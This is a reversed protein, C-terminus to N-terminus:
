GLIEIPDPPTLVRRALLRRNHAGFPRLDRLAFDPFIRRFTRLREGAGGPRLAITSLFMATVLDRRERRSRAGGDVFHGFANRYGWWLTEYKSRYAERSGPTGTRQDASYALVEGIHHVFPARDACKWLLLGSYGVGIGHTDADLRAPIRDEFAELVDATRLLVCSTTVPVHDAIEASRLLFEVADEDRDTEAAYCVSQRDGLDWTMGTYVFGVDPRAALVRVSKEIAAPALWDDSFLLKVFEGRALELCRRWNEVKGVLEDNRTVRIRPDVRAYELAVEHSGDTSANDVVVVDLDQYTQSVVSHLARGLEDRRNYVPICVSVTSM